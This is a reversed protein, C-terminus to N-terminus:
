HGAWLAFCFLSLPKPTHVHACVCVGVCVLPPMHLPSFTRVGLLSGLLPAPHSPVTTFFCGSHLCVVHANFTCGWCLARSLSAHMRFKDLNKSAALLIWEREQPTSPSTLPHLGSESAGLPGLLCFTHAGPGWGPGPAGSLLTLTRSVCRSSVLFSSLSSSAVPCFLLIM